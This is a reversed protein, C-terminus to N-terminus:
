KGILGPQTSDFGEIAFIRTLVNLELARVMKQAFRTADIILKRDKSSNTMKNVPDFLGIKVKIKDPFPRM